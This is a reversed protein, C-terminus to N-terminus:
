HGHVLELKTYVTDFLKTFFIKRLPKGQGLGPCPEDTLKFVALNNKYVFSFPYCQCTLPRIPYILCQSNKLFLCTGNKKKMVRVYPEANKLKTSFQNLRLNAFRSVKDAETKLMMIRREHDPQDKCCSACRNCIWCVSTPYQLDMKQHASQGKQKVM